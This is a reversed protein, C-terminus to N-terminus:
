EWTPRIFCPTAVCHNRSGHLGDKGRPMSVLFEFAFSTRIRSPPAVESKGFTVSVLHGSGPGILPGFHDGTEGGLAGPQPQELGAQGGGGLGLVPTLILRSM